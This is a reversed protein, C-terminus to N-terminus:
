DDPCHPPGGPYIGNNYDDLIKGWAKQAGCSNSRPCAEAPTTVTTFWAAAQNLIDQIVAPVTAGNAANLSAAIFQKGLIIYGNGRPPDDRIGQSTLGSNYFPDPRNYPAPWVVGPKNGWYGQSYTCGVSSQGIKTVFADPSGIPVGPFPGAAGAFAPQFAGPTIPFNPSFTQGTVFAQGDKDM